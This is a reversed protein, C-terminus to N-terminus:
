WKLDRLAQRVVEGQAEVPHRYASWADRVPDLHARFNMCARDRQGATMRVFEESPVLWCDRFRGVRTRDYFQFALWFDDRPVFTERAVACHVVDSDEALRATGKVQMSLARWSNDLQVLLDRGAIDVAPRYCMLRGSGGAIMEAVFAYEFYAGEEVRMAPFRSGVPPKLRLAPPPAFREWLDEPAMRYVAMRDRARSAARLDYELTGTKPNRYLRGYKKIVRSDLPWCWTMRLSEPDAGVLVVKFNRYATFTEARVRWTFEGDRQPGLATKIQVFQPREIGEWCYVRDVHRTDHLPLYPQLRWGSGLCVARDVENEGVWGEFKEIAQDSFFERQELAM